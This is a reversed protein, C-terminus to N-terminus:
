ILSLLVSMKDTISLIVGSSLDDNTSGSILGLIGHGFKEVLFLIRKGLRRLGSVFSYKIGYSSDEKQIDIMMSKTLNADIANRPNGVRRKNKSMHSHTTEVIFAGLASNQSGNCDIYLQLIHYRRLFMRFEVENNLREILKLRQLKSIQHSPNISIDPNKRQFLIIDHLNAVSGSSGLAFFFTEIQTEFQSLKTANPHSALLKPIPCDLSFGHEECRIKEQNIYAELLRESFDGDSKIKKGRRNTSMDGIDKKKRKSSKQKTTALSTDIDTSGTHCENSHLDSGHGPLQVFKDLLNHSFETNISELSSCRPDLPNPILSDINCSTQKEIVLISSGNAAGLAIDAFANIITNDENSKPSPLADEFYHSRHIDSISEPSTDPSNIETFDTM